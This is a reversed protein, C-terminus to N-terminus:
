IFEKMIKLHTPAAGLNGLKPMKNQVVHNICLALLNLKNSSLTKAQKEIMTSFTLTAAIDIGAKARELDCESLFFAFHKTMQANLISTLM